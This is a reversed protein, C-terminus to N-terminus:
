GFKYTSLHLSGMKLVGLLLCNKELQIIGKFPETESRSLRAVSCGEFPNYGEHQGMDVKSGCFLNTFAYVDM